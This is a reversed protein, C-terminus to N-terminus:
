LWFDSPNLDPSHHPWKEKPVFKSIKRKLLDQVETATHAPASDQVLVVQDLSYHHEMWAILVDELITIYENTSIRLGAPVFHPPMVRGDGAVAGLVMVSAPHKSRLVTSVGEPNTAILRANQRNAAEDVTFNEEDVFVTM